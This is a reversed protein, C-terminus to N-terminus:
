IINSFTPKSRHKPAVRRRIPYASTVSVMKRHSDSKRRTGIRGTTTHSTNIM